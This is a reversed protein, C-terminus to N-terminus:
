VAFGASSSAKSAPLLKAPEYEHWSESAGLKAFAVDIFRRLAYIPQLEIITDRPRLDSPTRESLM